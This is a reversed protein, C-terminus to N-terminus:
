DAKRVDQKETEIKLKVFAMELVDLAELTKEEATEIRTTLSSSLGDSDAYGCAENLSDMALRLAGKAAGLRAVILAYNPSYNAM